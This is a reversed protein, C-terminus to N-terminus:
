IQWKCYTCNTEEEMTHVTLWNKLIEHTHSINVIDWFESSYLLYANLSTNGGGGNRVKNKDKIKELM